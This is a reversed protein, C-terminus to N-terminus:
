GLERVLGALEASSAADLTKGAAEVAKELAAAVAQLSDGGSADVVRALAHRVGAPLTLSSLWGRAAQAREARSAVPLADSPLLAAALRAALLLALATEREGGLAARGALAALARFRFVPSALSYPTSVALMPSPLYLPM